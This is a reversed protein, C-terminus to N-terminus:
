FYTGLDVRVLDVDITNRGRVMREYSLDYFLPAFIKKALYANAFNGNIGYKWTESYKKTVDGLRHVGPEDSGYRTREQWTEKRLVYPSVEPVITFAVQQQFHYRNGPYLMTVTDGSALSETTTQYYRVRRSYPRYNQLGGQVYLTIWRLDLGGGLSNTLTYTGESLNIDNLIEPKESYGTPFTIETNLSASVIKDDLIRWRSLVGIDGLGKYSWPKMEQYGQDEIAQNFTQVSVRGLQSLADDLQPDIGGYEEKLQKTNREGQLVLHIDSKARVLPIYLGVTWRRTFGHAVAVAEMDVHADGELSLNGLEIRSGAENDMSLSNLTDVLQKAEGSQSKLSAGNVSTKYKGLLSRSAGESDFEKDPIPGWPMGSTLQILSRGQPLTQTSDWAECVPTCVMAVCM